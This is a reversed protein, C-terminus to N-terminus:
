EARIGAEKIVAAWVATERRMRATLEEPTSTEVELGQHSMAQLVDPVGVAKITADRMRSVIVAPTKAPVLLEYWSSM